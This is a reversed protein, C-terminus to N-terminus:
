QFGILEQDENSCPLLSVILGPWGEIALGLASDLISLDGRGNIKRFGATMQTLIQCKGFSTALDSEAVEDSGTNQWSRSM